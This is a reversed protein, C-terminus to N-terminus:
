ILCQYKNFNLKSSTSLVTYHNLVTTTISKFWIMLLVLTFLSVYFNM